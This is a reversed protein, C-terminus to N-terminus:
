FRYSYIFSGVIDMKKEQKDYPSQAQYLFTFKHSNYFLETELCYTTNLNNEQTNYGEHQGEKLIYAYRLAEASAGISLDYGFGHHNLTSGLLSAEEKLYPYHTNFDVVYNHGVRFATSMYVDIKNNGLQAGYHNTWDMSYHNKNHYQWTKIGKAFLLNIIWRTKIQTSWGKPVSDGILRHFNKQVFGAGSQHGVVGFTIRYESYNTSNYKFTFFSLASYGAYPLTNYQPTAKTTNSPTIIIQSVSIGATYKKDTYDTNLGLMRLIKYSLESYKASLKYNGQPTYANDLWSFVMGNTFLKDTGAFYDNYVQISIKQASLTIGFILIIIKFLNNVFM